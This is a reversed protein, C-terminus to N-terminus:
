VRGAVFDAAQTAFAGAYNPSRHANLTEGDTQCIPDGGNCLDISRPGWVPAITLPAGLKASPNGFAVVAAVFDPANPPLPNNFGLIPVPVSTIVDMVAAGQSYGGLVLRTNPCSGMMYQVHASADNAGDGALLFNYSAPYNVAYSGVSRGGVKSRLADVFADGVAGLGGTDDTGRAFVVEIGPCDASAVPAFAISPTIAAAAGVLLAATTEVVRM